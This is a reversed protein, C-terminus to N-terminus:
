LGLISFFFFFFAACKWCGRSITGMSLEECELLVWFNSPFRKGVSELPIEGGSKGALEGSHSVLSKM